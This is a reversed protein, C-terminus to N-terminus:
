FCISSFGKTIKYIIAHTRHFGFNTMKLILSNYLWLFTYISRFKNEICCVFWLGTDSGSSYVTPETLHRDDVPIALLM